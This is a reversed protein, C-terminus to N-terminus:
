EKPQYSVIKQNPRYFESVRVHHEADSKNVFAKSFYWETDKPERYFVAYLVM